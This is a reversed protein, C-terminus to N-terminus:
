RYIAQSTSSTYSNLTLILRWSISFSLTRRNKNWVKSADPGSGDGNANSAGQRPTASNSVSKAILRPKTVSGANSLNQGNPMAIFSNAISYNSLAYSLEALVKIAM